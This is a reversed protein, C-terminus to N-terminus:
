AVAPPAPDPVPAPAVIKRGSPATIFVKATEAFHAELSSGAEAAAKQAIAANKVGFTDTLKAVVDKGIKTALAADLVKATGVDASTADYADKLASMVLMNGRELWPALDPHSHFLPLTEIKAVLAADGTKLYGYLAGVLAVGTGAFLEWHDFAFQLATPM